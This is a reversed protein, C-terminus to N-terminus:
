DSKPQAFAAELMAYFQDEPDVTLSTKLVYIQPCRKLDIKVADKESCIVPRGSAKFVLADIVDASYNHHDRFVTKNIIRFGLQELSKFFVEPNALGCFADCDQVRLDKIASESCFGGAKLYSSFTKINAPIEAKLEELQMQNLASVSRSTFIVADVRKLAKKKDERFYGAPLLRGQRFANLSKEDGVYACILDLDRALARHQFGDDLIIINGLRNQEIYKAGEARKRAVVVPCDTKASLMLAEDGVDTASHKNTVQMPGTEKGKYGRTLIVPSFNLKQFTEALYMVLPTKGNGGVSLNGVSVVPLSSKYVAFYRRDYLYNRASIILNYISSLLKM